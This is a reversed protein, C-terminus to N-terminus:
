LCLNIRLYQIIPIKVPMKNESNEHERHYRHILDKLYIDVYSYINLKLVQILLNLTACIGELLATFPFRECM